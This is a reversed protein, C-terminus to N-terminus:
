CSIFFIFYIYAYILLYVSDRAALALIDACFVTTNCSNELAKKIVDIVKFGIASNLNPLANKDGTISDIDDLLVSADRGQLFNPQM